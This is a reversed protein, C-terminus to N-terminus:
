RFQTICDLACIRKYLNATSGTSPPSLEGCNSFAVISSKFEGMNVNSNSLPDIRHKSSRAVISVPLTTDPFGPALTTNQKKTKPILVRAKAPL